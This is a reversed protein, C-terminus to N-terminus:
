EGFLYPGTECGFLPLQIHIKSKRFRCGTKFFILVDLREVYVGAQVLHFFSGAGSRETGHREKNQRLTLREIEARPLRQGGIEGPCQVFRPVRRLIFQRCKCWVGFVFDRGLARVVNLGLFRLQHDVCDLLNDFCDTIRRRPLGRMSPRRPRVMVFFLLAGRLKSDSIRSSPKDRREETRLPSSLPSRNKPEERRGTCLGGRGGEGK